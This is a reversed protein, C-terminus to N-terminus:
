FLLHSPYRRCPFLPVLFSTLNGAIVVVLNYIFQLLDYYVYLLFHGLHCLDLSFILCSEVIDLFLSLGEFFLYSRRPPYCLCFFCFQLFNLSSTALHLLYFFSDLLSYLAIFSSIRDRSFSLSMRFSSNVATSLSSSSSGDDSSSVSFRLPFLLPLSAYLVILVPLLLMSLIVFEPVFLNCAFFEVNVFFLGLVVSFPVM